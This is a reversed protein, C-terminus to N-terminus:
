YGSNGFNRLLINYDIGSVIGDDNLDGFSDLLEDSLHHSKCSASNLKNGFCDILANYDKIDVTNHNTIDGMRMTPLTNNADGLFNNRQGATITLAHANNIIERLSGEPSKALVYYSGPPLFPLEFSSNTFTGNQDGNVSTVLITTSFDPVFAFNNQRYFSLTIKRQSHHPSVNNKGDIGEFHFSISGTTQGPTPSLPPSVPPSVSETPTPTSTTIPNPTDSVNTVTPSPTLTPSPTVPPSVSETPSPTPTLQIQTGWSTNPMGRLSIDLTAGTKLFDYPIWPNMYASGNLRFSQIFQNTDAAQPANIQLVNGNGLHISTGTFLPSGIAFGGVGPIEPYLGIASFVYWSSMAGEDDNGPLGNPQATYLQLQVRRIVDQTKYAAGAFDYEWPTFFSPENGMWAHSSTSDENLTTFFDDLRSIAKTNGGMKTFLDSIAFPVMWTYQAADGEVYGTKTTPSFGPTWNGKADKPQIYKSGTNFLKQWNASRKLFTAFSSADGLSQAFQALAFDDLTYELTISASGATSSSVYGLTQYGKLGERIKQQGNVMALLAGHTDFDKAGFAYATAIYADASDGVMGKSDANAQEWRPLHGDGQTADDILSQVIDSMEKPKLLAVLGAYSRYQDWGSINEYHHHGPSVTHIQNDFGRYEGNADDFINPHIFVHYLATYFITKEDQSGGEILISQLFSNWASVAANQITTFSSSAHERTINDQANAISVFSIGVHVHIQQNKTTDFTLLVGAHLGSATKTTSITNGTFTRSNSFPEDFRAAFYITYTNSGCGVVNTSSGTVLNNGQIAIQASQVFQKSSKIDDGAGIIMVAQNTAPYTFQGFGTRATATLEVTVQSKTLLVKYYGPQALENTHSFSAYYPSANSGPSQTIKGVFPLFPFNEYVDCGRGSFHTLSFGKITSDGYAYNGPLQTTTDPSWQVLGMPYVAGPFTDGRNASNTIKTNGPATGIFPNVFQTLNGAAQPHSAAYEKIKQQTQVTRILFFLAVFICLIAISGWLNKM